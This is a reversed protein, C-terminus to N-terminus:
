GMGPPPTLTKILEGDKEMARRYAPRALARSLYDRFVPKEPLAKIINMTFHVGSALHTDAATFLDGAAYPQRSLIKELNVVMDDFLGFSFTNSDYTWGQAKAVIAPDFVSDCYVLMTLYAARDKDGVPPALGADPFMDALYISIAARETVITGNHVIAPVKKNPQIARYSEAAGGKARVDVIRMEYPQGLEELLWHICASRSFPTHYFELMTM